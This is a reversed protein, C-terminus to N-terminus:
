YLMLYIVVGTLSVYLWVPYTIRAISKHKEVQMNWGRYLTILAMPIIFIALIIHTLLIFYYITSYDGIYAKPGAKFWHYIMYTVLFLSSTGFASLMATKHAPINKKKILWLAVILLLTSASNLLANVLPLMSVDVMGEIGDPRPGLILFAIALTIVISFIYIIRLWFKDM